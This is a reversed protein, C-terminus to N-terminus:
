LKTKLYAIADGVTIIQGTDYDPFFITFEKEFEM